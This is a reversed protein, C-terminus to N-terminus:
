CYRHEGCRHLKRANERRNEGHANELQLRRHILLHEHLVVGDTLHQVHCAAMRIACPRTIGYEERLQQALLELFAIILRAEHQCVDSAHRSDKADSAADDFASSLAVEATTIM